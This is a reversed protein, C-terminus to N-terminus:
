VMVSWTAQVAAVRYSLTCAADGAVPVPFVEPTVQHAMIFPLRYSSDGGGGGGGAGWPAAAVGDLPIVLGTAAAVTGTEVVVEVVEDVEGEDTVLLEVPGRCM